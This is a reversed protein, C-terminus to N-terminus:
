HGCCGTCASLTAMASVIERNDASTINVIRVVYSVPSGDNLTEPVHVSLHQCYSIRFVLNKSDVRPVAKEGLIPPILTEIKVGPGRKM